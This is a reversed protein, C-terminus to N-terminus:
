IELDRFGLDRFSWFRRSRRSRRAMAFINAVFSIAVGLDSGKKCNDVDVAFENLLVPVKL